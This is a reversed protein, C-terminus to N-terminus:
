EKSREGEKGEKLRHMKETKIQRRIRGDGIEVTNEQVPKGIDGGEDPSTTRLELYAWVEEKVGAEKKSDGSFILFSLQLGFM